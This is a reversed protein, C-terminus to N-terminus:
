AVPDYVFLQQYCVVISAYAIGKGAIVTKIFGDYTYSTPQLGLKQM